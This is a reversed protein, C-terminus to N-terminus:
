RKNYDEVAKLFAKINSEPVGPPIDCGSSIIFNKFAQTALLLNKTKQYVEEVSRMRFVGVPDLNGMVLRDPSIRKLASVIDCSNGFHLAGAGTSHMSEVLPNTNGCNHLIILFHDDQLNGVIKQIYNSSFNQCADPSLMGAAPEAMFIGDAGIAKYRECYNLLFSSCKELLLHILAPQLLIEMMLESLGYLRGALSFPGICGAFVPRDTIVKVALQAAKLYHPIRGQNLSPLALHMIANEDRVLRNIITPVEDEHFEIEAGFAETEVSLDMIMSCAAFSYKEALLKIVQAHLEGDTVAQRVTVGLIEIGPHTMIPFAMRRQQHIIDEKWLRMNKM